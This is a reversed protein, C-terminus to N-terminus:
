QIDSVKGDLFTIKLEKYVYILKTDVQLIKEPKGLTAVVQDISDGKLVTKPQPAPQPPAATADDPQVTLVESITNLLQDPSPISGKPFPVQLEGWYRVDDYPDSYLRFVVRDNGMDVYAKTIWYKDGSMGMRSPARGCNARPQVYRLGNPMAKPADSPEISHSIAGDKYTSTAAYSVGGAVSVSCMLVGDKHLVVVSGATVIDMQNPALKTLIFHSQLMQRLQAISDQDQGVGRGFLFLTLVVVVHSKRQM